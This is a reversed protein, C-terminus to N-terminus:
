KGALHDDFERDAINILKKYFLKQDQGKKDGACLIIAKRVPDFAYCVRYPHRNVKFRLEKMNSHKSGELSDAYPRGLNPGESELLELLAVVEVQIAAEQADFWTDFIERTDVFWQMKIVWVKRTTCM